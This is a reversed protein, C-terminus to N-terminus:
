WTAFSFCMPPAGTCKATAEKCPLRLTQGLKLFGAGAGLDSALHVLQAGLGLQRLLESGPHVGCGGDDRPELVVVVLAVRQRHQPANGRREVFPDLDAENREFAFAGSSRPVVHM